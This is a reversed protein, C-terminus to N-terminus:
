LADHEKACPKELNYLRQTFIRRAYAFMDDTIKGQQHLLSNIHLAMHLDGVQQIYQLRIGGITPNSPNAPNISNLHLYRNAAM